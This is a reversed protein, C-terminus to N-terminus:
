RDAFAAALQSTLLGYPGVHDGKLCQALRRLSEIRAIWIARQLLFDPDIGTYAALTMEAFSPGLWIVLGAFDWSADSFCLDTWDILGVVRDLTPSLLFHEGKTDGHCFVPAPDPGAPMSPLDDAFRRAAVPLDTERLVGRLGRFVEHMQASDAPPEYPVGDPCPLAHLVSFFEGLQRALLPWSEERPIHVQGCLGELRRHAAFRLEGEPSEGLVYGSPVPIPLDGAVAPMAKAEIRLRDAVESERPVRVIWEDGAAYTWHDAGGALPEIELHGGLRSRVLDRAEPSM